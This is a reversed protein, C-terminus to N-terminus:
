RRGAAEVSDPYNRALEDALQKAEEGRGAAQLLRVAGDLGRAALRRQQPFLLPPRLYHLMAQERRGLRALSQAVILHPGARLNEPMDAIRRAWREVEALDAAAMRDRWLQAEALAAVQPHDDDLASLRRLVAVAEDRRATALLHSAGLLQVAPQESNALWEAAKEPRAASSAPWQLPAHQLAPTSPDSSALAVFIDGAQDNLDLAQYCLMWRQLIMRRAWARREVLNAEAYLEAARRWQRQAVVEDAALRQTSWETRWDVVREADIRQVSGPSSEISLAKGTYDVITGELAFMKGDRSEAVVRDKEAACDSAFSLSVILTLALRNM